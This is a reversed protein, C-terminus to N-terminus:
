TCLERVKPDFVRCALDLRYFVFDPLTTQSVGMSCVSCFRLLWGKSATVTLTLLYRVTV